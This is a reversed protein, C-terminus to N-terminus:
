KHKYYKNSNRSEMATILQPCDKYISRPAPPPYCAALPVYRRHWIVRVNIHNGLRDKNYTRITFGNLLCKVEELQKAYERCERYSPFEYKFKDFTERHSITIEAFVKM